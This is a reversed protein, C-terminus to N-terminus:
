NSKDIKPLFFYIISQFILIFLSLSFINNWITNSLFRLFRRWVPRLPVRVSPTFWNVTARLKITFIYTYTVARDAHMNVFISLNNVFRHSSILFIFSSFDYITRTILVSCVNFGVCFWTLEIIIKKNDTKRKNKM